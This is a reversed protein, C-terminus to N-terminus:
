KTASKEAEPAAAFKKAWQEDATRIMTSVEKAWSQQVEANYNLYLKNNVIKWASPEVAAKYGKTMGWACYGGYEPAYKEPAAKFADRHEPSAFLWKAGRWEHTFEAKGQAPKGDSFYAVVDYGKIAISSKDVNYPSQAFLSSAAFVLMWATLLFPFRNHTNTKM